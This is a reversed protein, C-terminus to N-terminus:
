LEIPEGHPTRAAAAHWAQERAEIDQPSTLQKKAVLKELAALWHSYYDREIGSHIEASLCEAWEDWGFLGNEHLRVTMAFAQAEWPANFVPEDGDLVMDPLSKLDPHPNPKSM